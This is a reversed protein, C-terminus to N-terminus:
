FVARGSIKRRCVNIGQGCAKLVLHRIPSQIQGLECTTLFRLSLRAKQNPQLKGRGWPEYYSPKGTDSHGYKASMERNDGYEGRAAKGQSNRMFLRNRWLNVFSCPRNLGQVPQSEPRARSIQFSHKRNPNVFPDVLLQM